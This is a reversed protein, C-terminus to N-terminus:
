GKDRFNNQWNDRIGLVGLLAEIINGCWSLSAHCCFRLAFLCSTFGELIKSLTQFSRSSKLRLEVVTGTRLEVLRFGLHGLLFDLVVFVIRLSPQRFSFRFHCKCKFQQVGDLSKTTGGRLVLFFAHPRSVTNKKDPDNTATFNHKNRVPFTTSRAVLGSVLSLFQPYAM